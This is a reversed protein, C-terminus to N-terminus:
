KYRKYIEIIEKNELIERDAGNLGAYFMADALETSRISANKGRLKILPYFTRMMRYSFNPEKRPEVPYIYGPRFSYFAKLGLASIKNEAIGKYRAFAMRSKETRDVGAGSLFCLTAQTRNEKIARAFAVAYDVIIEKFKEDNVQGTYVGICFFAIDINQFIESQGSFENFDSIVFENLKPHSVETNRRVLSTVEDITSSSLCNQLILSGIM